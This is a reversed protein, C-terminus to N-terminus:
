VHLHGPKPPPHAHPASKAGPLVPPCSCAQDPTELQVGAPHPRRPAVRGAGKLGNEVGQQPVQGGRRLHRLRHGRRPLRPGPSAGHGQLVQWPYLPDTPSPARMAGERGM